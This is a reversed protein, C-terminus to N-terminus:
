FVDHLIVSLGKTDKYLVTEHKFYPQSFRYECAQFLVVGKCFLPLQLPEFHHLVRYM